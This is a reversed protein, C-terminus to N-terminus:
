LFNRAVNMAVQVIQNCGNNAAELMESSFRFCKGRFRRRCTDRTSHFPRPPAALRILPETTEAHLQIGSAVPEGNFVLTALHGTRYHQKGINQRAEVFKLFEILAGAQDTERGLGLEEALNEGGVTRYPGAM